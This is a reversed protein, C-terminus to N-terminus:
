QHDKLDSALLTFFADVEANMYIEEQSGTPLRAEFFQKVVEAYRMIDDATKNNAIAQERFYPLFERLGLLTLTVGIDTNLNGATALEDSRPVDPVRGPRVTGCVGAGAGSGATM